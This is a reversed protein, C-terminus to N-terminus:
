RGAARGLIGSDLLHQRHAEFSRRENELLAERYVLRHTDLDALAEILEDAEADGVYRIPQGAQEVMLLRTDTGIGIAPIGLGALTVAAHMRNVLGIRGRRAVELYEETNRPLVAEHQPWRSRALALEDDSHCIFLIRDRGTREALVKDVTALWSESSLNQGWDFHGGRRMVNVLLVGGDGPAPVAGGSHIAACSFVETPRGLSGAVEAALRDRATFLDSRDLMTSIAMRDAGILQVPRAAIWPFCSGGSLNLTPPRGERGLADDYIPGQWESEHVGFWMVPTGCQIVLDADTFVTDRGTRRSIRTLAETVQRQGFPMRAVVSRAAQSKLYVTWPQHKNVVKWLLEGDYSDALASVVLRRVGRRILDDGINTAKTSILAIKM